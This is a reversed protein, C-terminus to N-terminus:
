NEEGLLTGTTRFAKHYFTPDHKNRGIEQRVENDHCVFM